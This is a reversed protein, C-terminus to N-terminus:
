PQDYLGRIDKATERIQQIRYDGYPLPKGMFQVNRPEKTVSQRLLKFNTAPYEPGGLANVRTSLTTIAKIDRAFRDLYIVDQDTFSKTWFEIATDELERLKDLLERSTSRRAELAKATDAKKVQWIAIAIAVCWGILVLSWTVYDGSNFDLNIDIDTILECIKGKASALLENM